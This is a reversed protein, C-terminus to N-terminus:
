DRHTITVPRLRQAIGSVLWAAGAVTLPVGVALISVVVWPFPMWGRVNIAQWLVTTPLFGTPVGLAVGVLAFVAANTAAQRRMTAPTAGVIALTDREARGETAALSLGIAVVALTLLVALGVIVARAIWLNRASSPDAGGAYSASAFTVPTSAAGDSGPRPPDGPEIFGDYLDVGGNFAQNVADQQGDTLPAGARIVIGRQVVSFGLSEAHEATLLTSSAGYSSVPPDVAVPPEITVISGDLPYRISVFQEDSSVTPDAMALSGERELTERDRDSLGIVDLLAPTAVLPGDGSPWYEDTDSWRFAPPDFGAQQLPTVTADPFGEDVLAQEDADLARGGPASPDILVDDDQGTGGYQDTFQVVVADDPLYRQSEYAEVIEADAVMGAAVAGGVTVAIAAVVASSRTRSRAMSRLGLRSSLPLHGALRGAREIVLPTACVTGFVVAVTALVIALAFLDTDGGNSSTNRAGVGALALLGLGGLTLVVGTPVLWRPPQGLPRRGSLAAMVPVKSLSRAPVAAAVTGAVLATAGIAVLDLVAIRYGILDRDLVWEEVLGRVFPLSALAAAIGGVAGVLATWTGQLVLSRRIVPQTAGNAALHGVTVLQRRASTAFAAAVIIGVALLALVGGVWGWALTVATPDDYGPASRTLAGYRAAFEDVVGPGADDPLDVLTTTNRYEEAIRDRDFGPVVILQRNHVIRSRGIGAVTWTGAPRELALEGGVGVGFHDAVTPELLVEGAVPLRGDLVEVSGALMPDDLPMDTFTVYMRGVRLDATTVETTTTLYSLVRSGDPADATVRDVISTTSAADTTIVADAGPWDLNFQAPWENSAHQSRVLVSGLTMAAVPIAILLAALVTRGPRRRTERRALRAALRWGPFAGRDRLPPPLPVAGNTPRDALRDGDLVTMLAGRRRPRLLSVVVARQHRRRDQRRPPVGCPRGVVRVETRADGHRDRHRHPRSRRAGRGGPREDAHRASRDARGRVAGAPRRRGRARDRHAAAPWGLLQRPIPRAARRRRGTRSGARAEARASSTALGDLELPLMVNELATLSPILNLSQFVYGLRRRRIEALEAPALMSVDSGEFLVHGATPLELGGGLHLLTSKGCGSPGMIAVFEGPMVTLSVGDLARIETVGAGFTKVVNRYEVVPGTLDPTRNATIM